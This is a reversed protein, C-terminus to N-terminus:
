AVWGGRAFWAALLGLLLISAALPVWRLRQPLRQTLLALALFVPPLVAVRRPLSWFAYGYPGHVATLFLMSVLLFVSLSPRLRWLAWISLAVGFVAYLLDQWVLARSFWDLQIATGFLAAKIGDNFVNWPWTWYTQWGGEVSMGAFSVFILFGLPAIAAGILFRWWSQRWNVRQLWFEIVYPIALLIATGRTAGALLIAAGSAIFMGRRALYISAISLLLLFPEAYFAVFFFAVPFAYMWTVTLIAQKHDYDVRVWKYLLLGACLFAVSSLLLGAWLTPIQLSRSLLRVSLPYLPFFAREPGNPQYGREAIRLYYGADWRAFRGPLTRSIEANFVGDNWGILPALVHTGVLGAAHIYVIAASAITLVQLWWPSTHFSFRRSINM